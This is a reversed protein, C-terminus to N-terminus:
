PSYTLSMEWNTRLFVTSEGEGLHLVELYKGVVVRPRGLSNSSNGVEKTDLLADFNIPSKPINVDSSPIKM